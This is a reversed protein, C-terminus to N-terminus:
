RVNYCANECLIDVYILLRTELKQLARIKQISITECNYIVNFGLILLLITGNKNSCVNFQRMCM